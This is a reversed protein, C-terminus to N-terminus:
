AAEAHSSEHEQVAAVEVIRYTSTGITGRECLEPDSRVAAALLDEARIGEDAQLEVDFYTTRACILRLTRPM